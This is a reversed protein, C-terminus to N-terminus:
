KAEIANSSAENNEENDENNDSADIDAAEKLAKSAIRTVLITVLLTAILGVVLLGQSGGIEVNGSLVDQLNKAASGAYVYLLSGPMIGLFTALAFHPLKIKTVSYVYNILSFPFAPSLRTLFVILFGKNAVATDLNSFNKMNEAKGLVWERLFTQGVLYSICSGLTAAVVVIMWGKAIGFLYGASLSFVLAPLLLVIAAAYMLIFVIWATSQNQEIWTLGSAIYDTIPLKWLAFGIVAIVGLILLKKKNM